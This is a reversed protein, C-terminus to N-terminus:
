CRWRAEVLIPRRPGPQKPISTHCRRFANRRYWGGWGGPTRKCKRLRDDFVRAVWVALWFDIGRIPDNDLTSFRMRKISWAMPLSSLAVRMTLYPRRYTCSSGPRRARFRRACVGIGRGRSVVGDYWRLGSEREVCCTPSEM